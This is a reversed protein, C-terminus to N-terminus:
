VSLRGDVVVFDGLLEVANLSAFRTNSVFARLGTITMNSELKCVLHEDKTTVPM